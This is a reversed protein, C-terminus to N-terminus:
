NLSRACNHVRVRVYSLGVSALCCTCSGMSVILVPLSWCSLQLLPEDFSTIVAIAPPRVLSYPSQHRSCAIPCSARLKNLTHSIPSARHGCSKVGRAGLSKAYQLHMHQKAREARAIQVQSKAACYGTHTKCRIPDCGLQPDAQM